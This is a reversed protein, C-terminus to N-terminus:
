TYYEKNPLGIGGQSLYFVNTEVDKLDQGVGFGFLPSIGERHIKALFVILQEFNKIQSLTNLYPKIESFGQSNRQDMDLFSTYLGVINPHRCESVCLIERRIEEVNEDTLHQTEIIKIAVSQTYTGNTCKAKWILGFSGQGVPTILEYGEKDTPWSSQNEEILKQMNNVFLNKPLM